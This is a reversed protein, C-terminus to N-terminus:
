KARGATECKGTAVPTQGLTLPGFLVGRPTSLRTGAADFNLIAFTTDPTSAGAIQASIPIRMLSGSAGPLIPDPEDQGFLKAVGLIKAVHGDTSRAEAFEWGSILTGKRDVPIQTRPDTPKLLANLSDLASPKQQKGPVGRVFQPHEPRDWQLVVEFGQITDTTSVLWLDIATPCDSSDRVVRTELVATRAVKETQALAPRQSAMGALIATMMICAKIRM